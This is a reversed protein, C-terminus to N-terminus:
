DAGAGRRRSGGSMVGERWHQVALWWRTNDFAISKSGEETLAVPAHEARGAAHRVKGKVYVRTTDHIARLEANRDRSHHFSFDGREAKDLMDAPSHRILGSPETKHTPVYGDLWARAEEVIHAFEQATEKLRRMYYIDKGFRRYDRKFFFGQQKIDDLLKAGRAILNHKQERWESWLRENTERFRPEHHRYVAMVLDIRSADMGQYTPLHNGLLSPSPPLITRPEFDEPMEVFWWEGQRRVRRGEKEADAVLKPKLLLIAQEPKKIKKKEADTLFFAFPTGEDRGIYLVRGDSFHILAETPRTHLGSEHRQRYEKIRKAYDEESEHNYRGADSPDFPVIRPVIKVIDKYADSGAVTDILTMPLNVAKVPVDKGNVEVMAPLGACSAFGMAWCQNNHILLGSKTRYNERTRYHVCLGSGDNHQYCDYNPGGIIHGGGHPNEKLVWMRVGDAQSRAHQRRTITYERPLKDNKLIANM